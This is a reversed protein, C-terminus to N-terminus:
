FWITGEGSFKKAEKKLYAEAVLACIYADKEHKTRFRKRALKKAIKKDLILVAYPYTEIIKCKIAKKIRKKLIFARIALKRLSPLNFSFVPIKKKHLKRDCKRFAGRKPLSLPADMAIVKPKSDLIKKIIEEDSYLIETELKKGLLCFGSPRSQLAALDLGIVKSM